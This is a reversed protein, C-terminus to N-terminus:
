VSTDLKFNISLAITKGLLWLHRSKVLTTKTESFKSKHIYHVLHYMGKPTYENVNSELEVVM